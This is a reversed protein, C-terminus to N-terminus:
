KSTEPTEIYTVKEDVKLKFSAHGLLRLILSM